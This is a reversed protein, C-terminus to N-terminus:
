YLCKNIGEWLLDATREWSFLKKQIDGRKILDNRLDDNNYIRIMANKIENINAPDVLIAAEGAVEPLSTVNSAIVPVHCQMAEILPIGFGEFFPVFVFAHAAGYIDNLTQDNVRGTFIVDQGFTMTNKYDILEGSRYMESGAIVLKFRSATEKKFFEFAQLLGKVNKRPSLAGVFLFYLEGSTYKNRIASIEDISLPKFFSNIGCYVVDIKDEEIGFTKVIDEKSYSSVTAIRSAKKAFKPFYHRYYKRNSFKLFEPHHMFNIDHIVAYQRGQWGLCLMGDPSFYLDPKISNLKAKVSVESWLINLAAHKAPPFLNHPIVNHGFLFEKEIGSDFFFHFEVEPNKRTIYQLTNFAFWGIGDLKGKRLLRTNVAIKM